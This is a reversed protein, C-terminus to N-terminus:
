LTNHSEEVWFENLDIELDSFPEVRVPIEGGFSGLSIWGEKGYKLAILNKTAPELLWYYPIQLDYYLRWKKVRDVRATSPSQIECVWDPKSSISAKLYFDAEIRSARWGAIDPIFIHGDRRLEPETLFVWDGSGGSRKKGVGSNLRTSMGLMAEQHIPSPRPNVILENYIIEGRMNEPLGLLDEYTPIKKTQVSDTM